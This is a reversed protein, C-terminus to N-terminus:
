GVNPINVLLDTVGIDIGQQYLLTSVQGRHHTQHNFFHQLVHGFNKIFAQGNTNKYSLPESIAKDTLEKTFLKIVKDMKERKEKLTGFESYLITDLSKPTELARVYDLAPYSELHNAFRQLWITDGVLIHNLTNIISGFFVGQDKALNTESLKSAAQYINENIGQNYEAMLEFNLKLSM